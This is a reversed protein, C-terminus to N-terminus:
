FLRDLFLRDLYLVFLGAGLVSGVTIIVALERKGQRAGVLVPDDAAPVEVSLLLSRPVFIADHDLLLVAEGAETTEGEFGYIRQDGPFVFIRVDRPRGAIWRRRRECAPLYPHSRYPVGSTVPITVVAGALDLELTRRTERLATGTLLQQDTFCVQATPPDVGETAHAPGHVLLSLALGLGVIVLM